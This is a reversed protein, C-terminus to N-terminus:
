FINSEGGAHLCDLHAMFKPNLNDIKVVSPEGRSKGVAVAACGQLRHSLCLSLSRPPSLLPPSRTEGGSQVRIRSKSAPHPSRLYPCVCTIAAGVHPNTPPPALPKTPFLPGWLDLSPHHATPPHSIFVQLLCPSCLASLIVLMQLLSSLSLVHTASAQVPLLETASLCGPSSINTFTVGSQLKDNNMKWLTSRPHGFKHHTLMMKLFLNFFFIGTNDPLKTFARTQSFSPASSLFPPPGRSAAPSLVLALYLSPFPSTFVFCSSARCLFAHLLKWPSLVLFVICSLPLVVLCGCFLFVPPVNLYGTMMGDMPVM